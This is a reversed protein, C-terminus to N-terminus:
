IGHRQASAVYSCHYSSSRNCVVSSLYSVYRSLFQNKILQVIPIFSVICYMYETEDFVGLRM